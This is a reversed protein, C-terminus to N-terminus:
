VVELPCRLRVLMSGRRTSHWDRDVTWGAMQFCYGPNTSAVEARDVWTLWGDAPRGPSWAEATLKMASRILTSSLMDGENRFIVCRWADLGDLALHGYPWHSAWVAQEDPSVFTLLRGPPGVSKGIKGYKRRSYHRNALAVAVPDVKTTRRWVATEDDFLTAPM